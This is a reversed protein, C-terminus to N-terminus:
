VISKSDERPKFYSKFGILCKTQNTGFGALSFLFQDTWFFNKDNYYKLTLGVSILWRVIQCIKLGTLGILDNDRTEFATVIVFYNCLKMVINIGDVNLINMHILQKANRSLLVGVSICSYVVAHM